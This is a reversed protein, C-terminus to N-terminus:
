AHSAAMGAERAHRRCERLNVEMSTFGCRSAPASACSPPARRRLSRVLSASQLPLPPALRPRFSPLFLLLLAVIVSHIRLLAVGADSTQRRIVNRVATSTRAAGESCNSSSPLPTRCRALSTRPTPRAPPPRRARRPARSRFLLLAASSAPAM